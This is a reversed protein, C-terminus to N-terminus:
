INQRKEHTHPLITRHVKNCLKLFKHLTTGVFHFKDDYFTQFITFRCGDNLQGSCFTEAPLFEEIVSLRFKFYRASMCVYLDITIIQRIYVQSRQWKTNLPRM